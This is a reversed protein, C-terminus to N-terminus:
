NNEKAYENGPFKSLSYNYVDEVILGNVLVNHMLWEEHLMIENYEEEDLNEVGIVYSSLIIGVPPFGVSDAAVFDTLYEPDILVLKGIEAWEPIREFLEDFTPRSMKFCWTQYLSQSIPKM